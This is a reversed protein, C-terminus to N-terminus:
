ENSTACVDKFRKGFKAKPFKKPPVSVKEGTKPNRATRAPRDVATIILGNFVTVPEETFLELVVDGYAAIVEKVVKQSYGCGEAVKKVLENKKVM